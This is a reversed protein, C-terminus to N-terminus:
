MMSKERETFEGSFRAAHFADNRFDCSLDEYPGLRSMFFVCACQEFDGHCCALRHSSGTCSGFLDQTVWLFEVFRLSRNCLVRRSRKSIVNGRCIPEGQCAAVGPAVRTDQSEGAYSPVSPFALYHCCLFIASALLLSWSKRGSVDLMSLSRLTTMLLDDHFAVVKM